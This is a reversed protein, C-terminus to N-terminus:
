KRGDLKFLILILLLCQMGQFIFIKFAFWGWDVQNLTEILEKIGLEM